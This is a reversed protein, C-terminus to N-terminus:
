AASAAPQGRDNDPSAGLEAAVKAWAVELAENAIRQAEAETTALKDLAGRLARRLPADHERRLDGGELCILARAYVIDDVLERLDKRSPANRNVHLTLPM